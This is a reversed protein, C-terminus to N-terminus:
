STADEPNEIYFGNSQEIASEILTTAKALKDKPLKVGTCDFAKDEVGIKGDVEIATLVHIIRGGLIQGRTIRSLEKPTFARPNCLVADGEIALVCRGTESIAM